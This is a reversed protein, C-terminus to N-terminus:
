CKWKLDFWWKFMDCMWENIEEVADVSEITDHSEDVLDHLLLLVTKEKNM